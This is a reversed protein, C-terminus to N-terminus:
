LQEVPAAAMEAVLMFHYPQGKYESGPNHELLIGGGYCSCLQPLHLNMFMEAPPGPVRSKCQLGWGVRSEALEM